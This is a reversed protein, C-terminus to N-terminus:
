SIKKKFGSFIFIITAITWIIESSGFASGYILWVMPGVTMFCGVALLIGKGSTPPSGIFRLLTIIFGPVMVLGRDASDSIVGAIITGLTSLGWFVTFITWGWWGSMKSKRQPSSPNIENRKSRENETPDADLKNIEIEMTQRRKKELDPSAEKSAKQQLCNSNTDINQNIIELLSKEAYGCCMCTYEKFDDDYKYSTAGCKSCTFGNRDLENRDKLIEGIALFAEPTWEERNNTILIQLLEKTSKSELKKKIKLIRDEM